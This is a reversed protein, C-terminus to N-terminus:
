LPSQKYVRILKDSSHSVMYILWDPLQTVHHPFLNAGKGLKERFIM